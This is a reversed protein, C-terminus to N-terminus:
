GVKLSLLKDFGISHMMGSQIPKVADNVADAGYSAGVVVRDPRAGAPTAILDTLAVAVDHSDPADASSFVDQLFELFVGPLAAVEGYEAALNSQTAQQTSAYLHTPYASPQLLVVDIGLQSLEYRYSETMAEVAFKSAGYLGIFPVTMRGLVSGINIILGIGNKRMEPLAARTVRHVGFVNVDFMDRMQEPSYTESIGAAFLGANNILVDLKGNSLESVKQFALTVSGNSTVDLEVVDIGASRLEDAAARSRGTIDRMTAIVRHGAKALTQAADKGFGNSTGTILITKSM